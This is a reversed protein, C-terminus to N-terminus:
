FDVALSIENGLIFGKEGKRVFDSILGDGGGLVNIGELCLELLLAHGENRFNPFIDLDTTDSIDLSINGGGVKVVPALDSDDNCSISIRLCELVHAHV